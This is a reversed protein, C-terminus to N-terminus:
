REGDLWVLRTAGHHGHVAMADRVSGWLVTSSNPGRWVLRVWGSRLEQVRGDPWVVRGPGDFEEGDAVVGVGSVGTHDVDRQLQFRRARM